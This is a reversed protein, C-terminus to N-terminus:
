KVFAELSETEAILRPTFLYFNAQSKAETTENNRYSRPSMILLSEHAALQMRAGITKSQVNPVQVVVDANPEEHLGIPLNALEVDVIKSETVICGLDVLQEESVEVRLRISCGEHVIEITPQLSSGTAGSLM